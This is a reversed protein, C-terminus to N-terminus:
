GAAPLNRGGGSCFPFNPQGDKGQNVRVQLTFVIDEGTSLEYNVLEDKGKQLCFGVGSPPSVLKISLYLEIEM